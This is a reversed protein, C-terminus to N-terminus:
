AKKTARRALEHREFSLRGFAEWVCKAHQPDMERGSMRGRFAEPNNSNGTFRRVVSFRVGEVTGRTSDGVFKGGMFLPVYSVNPLQGIRQLELMMENYPDIFVMELTKLKEPDQPNSNMEELYSPLANECIRVDELLEAKMKREAVRLSGSSLLEKM